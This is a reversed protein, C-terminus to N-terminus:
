STHNEEDTKNPESRDTQGETFAHAKDLLRRNSEFTLCRRAQEYPLFRYDIVEETQLTITRSTPEGLFFVVEKPIHGQVLYRVTERFGPCIRASLGTEELVERLATEEETEGKEVHGKPFDWHGGVHRIILYERRENLLIIGCSKESKLM